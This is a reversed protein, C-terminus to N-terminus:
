RLTFARFHPHLCFPLAPLLCCVLPICTHVLMSSDAPTTHVRLLMSALVPVPMTKLCRFCGLCPVARTRVSCVITLLAAGSQLVDSWLRPNCCLCGLEVAPVVVAASVCVVSHPPASLLPAFLWLCSRLCISASCVFSLLHESSPYLVLRSLTHFCHVAPTCGTCRLAALAAQWAETQDM